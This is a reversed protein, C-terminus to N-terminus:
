VKRMTESGLPKMNAVVQLMDEKTVQGNIGTMAYYFGNHYFDTLIPQIGREQMEPDPAAAEWIMVWYEGVKLVEASLYRKLQEPTQSLAAKSIEITINDNRYDKVDQDSYVLLALGAFYIERLRIEGPMWTPLVLEGVVKAGDVLEEVSLREAIEMPFPAPGHPHSTESGTPQAERDRSKFAVFGLLIAIAMCGVLVEKENRM